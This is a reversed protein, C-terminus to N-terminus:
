DVGVTAHTPGEIPDDGPGPGLDEVGASLDHFAGSAVKSTFVFAPGETQARGSETRLLLMADCPNVAHSARRM